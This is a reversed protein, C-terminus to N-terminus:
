TTKRPVWRRVPPVYAGDKMYGAAVYEYHGHWREEYMRREWDELERM